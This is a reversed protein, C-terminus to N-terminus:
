DKKLAARTGPPHAAHKRRQPAREKLTSLSWFAPDEVGLRWAAFGRLHFEQMLRLKADLSRSNEYWDTHLGDADSYQFWPTRWREDWLGSVSFEDMLDQADAFSLTRTSTEDGSQVWERGYFPIGLLIKQRPVRETAYELAAKVWDYGAVPGPPTASSHHDYTMLTMFDVIRGLARFDYPAGWEGSHFERRPDVDPYVDSFRPVVAISLLRGESHLRAAARQVFRTYYTKDEPAIYELDLQWGAFDYRAALRALNTVARQQARLSRLLEGAAERDFGPNVVLPMVAVKARRATELIAPPVAGEVSGEEDVEFSQPAVLTMQSVHEEFSEIGQSDPAYYYMALPRADLVHWRDRLPTSAPKAPPKPSATPLQAAILHPLLMVTLTILGTVSRIIRRM